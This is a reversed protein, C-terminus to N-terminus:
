PGVMSTMGLVALGGFIILVAFTGLAVDRGKRQDVLSFRPYIGEVQWRPGAFWTFILGGLLGGVHGWNDIGPALGLFLNAAIVIAVNGIARGAQDGFLKRNLYLFIGEAAALGFVATSAGVSYGNDSGLLFSFVNGSFASLVYLALFRNHGFHRELMSGLVILGYMNFFIHPISGHLLAPTFFRWVQGARIMSNIRAGFLQLWDIDYLAYGFFYISALQLIYVFVTIGVIAYTVRPVSVPLPVHVARPPPAPQLDSSSAPLENM